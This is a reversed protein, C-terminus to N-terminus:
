RRQENPSSKPHIRVVAMRRTLLQQPKNALILDIQADHFPQPQDNREALDRVRGVPTHQHFQSLPECFLKARTQLRDPTRWWKFEVGFTGHHSQMAARVKADYNLYVRATSSLSLSASAGADAGCRSEGIGQVTIRQTGLSVVVSSFTQSFNDVFKGYASLDLIKRDFIWYHGIEAGAASIDL